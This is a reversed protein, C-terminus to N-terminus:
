RYMEYSLELTSYFSGSLHYLGPVVVAGQQGLMGWLFRIHAGVVAEEGPELVFPEFRNGFGPQIPEDPSPRRPYTGAGNANWTWTIAEFFPTQWNAFDFDDPMVLDEVLTTIDYDTIRAAMTGTNQIVFSFSTNPTPRDFDIQFAVERLRNDFEVWEGNVNGVNVNVLELGTAPDTIFANVPQRLNHGTGSTGIRGGVIEVRLDANVNAVGDFVLEGRSAFAFAAGALLVVMFTAVLVNLFKKNRINMTNGGFSNNIKKPRTLFLSM